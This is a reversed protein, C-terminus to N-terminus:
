EVSRVPRAGLDTLGTGPQAIVELQAAGASVEAGATDTEKLMDAATSVVTTAATAFAKIAGAAAKALAGPDLNINISPVPDAGGSVSVLSGLQAVADALDASLQVFAKYLGNLASVVSASAKNLTGVFSGPLPGTSGITDQWNDLTKTVPTLYNQGFAQAGPGEWYSSARQVAGLQAKASTLHSTATIWQGIAAQIKPRDGIIDRARQIWTEVVATGTAKARRMLQRIQNVLANFQEESFQLPPVTPATM